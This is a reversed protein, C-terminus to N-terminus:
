RSSSMRLRHLASKHEHNEGSTELLFSGDPLPYQSFAGARSAMGPQHVHMTRTLAGSNVDVVLEGYLLLETDSIWDIVRGRRASPGPCGALRWVASAFPIATLNAVGSEAILLVSQANEQNEDLLVAITSNGPAPAPAFAIGSVAPVQGAPLNMPWQAVLRGSSVELVAIRPAADAGALLTGDHSLWVAVPQGSPAGQDSTTRQKEAPWAIFRNLKGNPVDYTSVSLRGQDRWVVAFTSEDCFGLASPTGNGGSLPIQIRRRSRQTDWVEAIPAGASIVRVLLKGSPSLAYSVPKAGAIRLSGQKSLDRASWWEIVHNGLTDSLLTAFAETNVAPWIVQELAEPQDWPDITIGSSCGSTSISPKVRQTKTMAPLAAGQLPPPSVSGGASVTLVEAMERVRPNLPVRGPLESPVDAVAHEAPPLTIMRQQDASSCYVEYRAYLYASLVSVPGALAMCIVALIGGMVWRLGFIACTFLLVIPLAVLVAFVALSQVPWGSFWALVLCITGPISALAWNAVFSGGSIAMKASRLTVVCALWYVMAVLGITMVEYLALPKWVRVLTDPASGVAEGPVALGMRAGEGLGYALVIMFHLLLLLLACATDTGVQGVTRHYFWKYAAFAPSRAVPVPPGVEPAEVYEDFDDLVPLDLDASDRRLRLDSDAAADGTFRSGCAQCQLLGDAPLEAPAQIVARCRPCATIM